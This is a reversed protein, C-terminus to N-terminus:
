QKVQERSDIVRTNIINKYHWGSPHITREQTEYNVNIIGFRPGYGDNWELNDLLSWYYYRQVDVGDDILKKVQLLHKDIFDSRKSDNANAIGNETIYIPLKYQDYINKTVHYLGQPFIEWDLDTKQHELLDEKYHVKGFLMGADWSPSIMSRTYYNVGIFDAYTKRNGLKRPLFPFLLKGEIMGKIFLTHFSHNLFKETLKFFSRKTNLEFYSLHPVIGVKTDGKFGNTKRVEHIMVYAKVHAIILHKAARFYSFLSGKKGGPYKGDMYTDNLFVNPENIVGYESVRDGLFTVVKKSFRLFYDVVKKNTFGGLNQAWIPMSFHHLTVLPDINNKRLMDIEDIYHKIGDESWEGCKPEIRSWEISMRYIQLDLTKMLDIDEEYRNWHDCAVISSGGNDIKGQEGWEYWNNNYDGGEIQTAATAAGMLLNKPLKVQAM